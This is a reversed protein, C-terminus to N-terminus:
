RSRIWSLGNTRAKAMNKASYVGRAYARIRAHRNARDIMMNKDQAKHIHKGQGNKKVSYTVSSRYNGRGDKLAIDKSRVNMNKSLTNAIIKEGLKKSKESLESYKKAKELLKRTKEDKQPVSAGKKEARYKQRSHRNEARAKYYDAKSKALMRERDMKNLDMSRGLASRKGNSGYRKEGLPTLSGDPNQYRRQGWKMGKTGFHALGSEWDTFTTQISYNM